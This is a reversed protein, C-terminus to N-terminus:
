TRCREPDGLNGTLLTLHSLGEVCELRNVAELLDSGWTTAGHCAILLAPTTPSRDDRAAALADAVDEAIRPVDTWNRFVPVTTDALGPGGLGKALEWRGFEVSRSGHECTAALATAYPPHAHVVARAAPVNAYIALHISTEASPRESEGVLPAGDNLSVVVTDRPSMRGKARGSASITVRDGARVSVNGATGPAWGQRYLDRCAAAVKERDAESAGDSESFHRPVGRAQGEPM